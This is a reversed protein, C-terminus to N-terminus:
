QPKYDKPMLEVKVSVLGSPIMRIKKAAALSLDVLRRNNKNMRDTIKVIVIRHNQLSTVRVWRNLPLINSAATMKIKSYKEGNSMKRGEFKNHYYSATGLLVNKKGPRVVKPKESNKTQQAFIISSFLLFSIFFLLRM